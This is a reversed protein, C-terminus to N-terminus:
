EDCGGKIAALRKRAQEAEIRFWEEAMGEDTGEKFLGQGRMERWCRDLYAEKDFPTTTTKSLEAWIDAYAMLGMIHERVYPLKDGTERRWCEGLGVSLKEIYLNCAKGVGEPGTASGITMALSCVGAQKDTLVMKAVAAAQNIENESYKKMKKEM